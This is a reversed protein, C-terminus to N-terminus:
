TKVTKTFGETAEIFKEIDETSHATSVFCHPFNTTLYAVGHAIMYQHYKKLLEIKKNKEADVTNIPKEGIFHIGFMSGIGTVQGEFSHKEFVNQLGERAKEGLKDIKDYLKKDRCKQLTVIGATMTVPNGVFTGGQGARESANPYKLHDMCEMIDARGCIAGVPYGGGIIKGLVTLDPNVQYLKQAGGSSLRFGTIVEDFILLIGKEDCLERLGKLFEKEAPIFGGSGLVPEITISALELGEIAKGVGELNNYPLVVTDKLAGETLGATQPKDMPARVAVYLADYGGHWGGEFKAILKRKTYARATRIAYMNAETGSNTFRVMDASPVMSVILEALEIELKHCYGWHSGVELQAKVAKVVAPHCHGLLLSGHGCWFDVYENGDIDYIRSGSARAVYFPVPEYFRIGYTVGGPLVKRARNFMEISKKMRTM